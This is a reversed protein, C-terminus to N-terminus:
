GNMAEEVRELDGSVEDSLDSGVGARGEYERFTALARRYGNASLELLARREGGTAARGARLEDVEALKYEGVGLDRLHRLVPDSRYTERRVEEGRAFLARAGELEGSDRLVNGLKNLAVALDRQAELNSEDSALAEALGVCSEFAERAEGLLEASLADEGKAAARRGAGWIATGTDHISVWLDRAREYHEPRAEHRARFLRRAETGREMAERFAEGATRNEPAEDAHELRAEGRALSVMALKGGVVAVARDAADGDMELWANRLELYATEVEDLRGEIGALGANLGLRPAQERRVDARALLATLREHEDGAAEALRASEDYSAIAGDYDKRKRLVDGIRLHSRAVLSRLEGTELGNAVASDLLAARLRLSENYHVAADETTGTSAENLGGQLDGVREHAEALQLRFSPDGAAQAEVRQLHEIASSLVLERAGTAGRLHAISDHFDHVLTGAMDLVARLNDEAREREVTEAALAAETKQYAGTMVGGFVVLMVAASAAFAAPMKHRKVTKQILYWGSDRKAEIADGALYREIDRALEGASQYRRERDKALAKLVITEVEDNIRRRVTSPRAPEARQINDLVDRMNGVVEYPFRGGTLMQYLVVGLSYVDSRLDVDHVSGSAQEPSAWPLSGVFQGTMTMAGDEDGAVSKALGFDVIIPEGNSDVRINAPKLDRHIVGRLHAANMAECIKAFLRLTEDVGPGVLEGSRSRKGSKALEREAERQARRQDRLVEDLARGSIYDMVYFFSGDGTVGSDHLKVINPHNLQGLVQVEREFRARAAPGLTAGGHMVKIAVKQRTSAQVAQYVVGQGGRHIERTVEYGPFVDRVRDADFPDSAIGSGSGVSTPAEPDPTGGGGSGEAVGGPAGGRASAGDGTSSGADAFAGLILNRERSAGPSAGSSGTHERDTQGRARKM